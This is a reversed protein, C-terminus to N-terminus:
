GNTVKWTKVLASLQGAAQNITEALETANRYPRERGVLLDVHNDLLARLVASLSGFYGYRRWKLKGDEKGRYSAELTWSLADLKLVRVHKTVNLVLM